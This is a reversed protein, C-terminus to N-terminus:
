RFEVSYKGALILWEALLNATQALAQYNTSLLEVVQEPLGSAQFYRFIFYFLQNLDKSLDFM